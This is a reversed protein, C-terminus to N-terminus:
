ERGKMATYYPKITDWAEVLSKMLAAWDAKQADVCEAKFDQPVKLPNAECEVALKVALQSAVLAELGLELPEGKGALGLCEERGDRTDRETGMLLGSCRAIEVGVYGDWGAALEDAAADSAVVFQTAGAKAAACSTTFLILAALNIILRKM